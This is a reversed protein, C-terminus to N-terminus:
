SQTSKIAANLYSQWVKKQYYGKILKANLFYAFLAAYRKCMEM